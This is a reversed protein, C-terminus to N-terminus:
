TQVVPHTEQPWRNLLMSLVWPAAICTTASVVVMGAYLEPPVAWEGLQGGRRAIIMAIEARPVMSVGILAAGVRGTSLLAPAGAGIVKSVVAIVVLVGGATLGSLAFGPDIGLGIGVFFFPTFLEYISEFSTDFKVADPDRSFFLGALLAGIALSFGLWGAVAAIIFGAGAVLLMTTEPHGAKKFLRTLSEEVYRSLVFCVASFCLLKVVFTGATGAIQPLILAASGGNHVEPAVAFLVAMLGVGSIDDLEAVDILLEGNPSRLAQKDRWVAMSVGVSTATLCTGAFLSPIMELGLAFRAVLYGGIGSLGVNGIWIMWARPLQRVLGRLNSELGIRFLLAVVGVQALFGFVADAEPSIFAWREDLLRLLFGLAMFGVLGPIRIRDLWAKLLLSWLVTIGVLLVLLSFTHESHLM